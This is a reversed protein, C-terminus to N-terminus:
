NLLKTQDKQQEERLDLIEREAASLRTDSDELAQRVQSRVLESVMTSIKPDLDEKEQTTTPTTPLACAGGTGSTEPIATNGPKVSTMEEEELNLDGFRLETEEAGSPSEDAEEEAPEYDLLLNEEHKEMNAAM